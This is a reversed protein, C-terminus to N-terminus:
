KNKYLFYYILVGIIILLVITQLCGVAGKSVTDIVGDGQNRSFLGYVFFILIVIIITTVM